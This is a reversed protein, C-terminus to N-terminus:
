PRSSQLYDVLPSVLVTLMVNFSVLKAIVIVYKGSLNLFQGYVPHFTSIDLIQLFAHVKVGQGGSKPTLRNHCHVSPPTSLHFLYMWAGGSLDYEIM